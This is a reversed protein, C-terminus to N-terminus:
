GSLLSLFEGKEKTKRILFERRRLSIIAGNRRLDCRWPRFAWLRTECRLPEKRIESIVTSREKGKM